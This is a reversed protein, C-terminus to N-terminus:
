SLLAYVQCWGIAPVVSQCALGRVGAGGGGLSARCAMPQVCSRVLQQQEKSKAELETLKSTIRKVEGQIYELRKAVNTIAEMLDQKIMAPGILKYVTSSDDLLALEQMPLTNSSSESAALFFVLQSPPGM